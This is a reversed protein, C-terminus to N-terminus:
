PSGRARTSESRRAELRAAHQEARLVRGRPTEARDDGSATQRREYTQDRIAVKHSPLTRRARQPVERHLSGGTVRDCLCTTDRREGLEEIVARGGRMLNGDGGEFPLYTLLYTLVECSIAMAVRLLHAPLALSAGASAARARARRAQPTCRQQQVAARPQAHSSSRRAVAEVGVGLGGGRGDLHIAGRRHICVHM